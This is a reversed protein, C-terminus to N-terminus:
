KAGARYLIALMSREIEAQLESRIDTIPTTSLGVIPPRLSSM